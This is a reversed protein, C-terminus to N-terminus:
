CSLLDPPAACGVAIKLHEFAKEKATKPAYIEGILFEVFIPPAGTKM